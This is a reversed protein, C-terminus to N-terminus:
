EIDLGELPELNTIAIKQTAIPLGDKRNTLYDRAAKDGAKAQTVAKALIAKWDKDKVQAEIM